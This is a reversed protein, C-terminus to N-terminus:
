PNRQRVLMKEKAQIAVVRLGLVVRIARESSPRNSRIAQPPQARMREVTADVQRLLVQSGGDRLHLVVLSGTPGRDNVHRGDADARVRGPQDRHGLPGTQMDDGPGPVVQGRGVGVVRSHLLGGLLQGVLHAARQQFAHAPRLNAGTQHTLKAHAVRWRRHFQPHEGGGRLHLALQVAGDIDVGGPIASPGLRGDPCHFGGADLRAPRHNAVEVHPEEVVQGRVFLKRPAAVPEREIREAALHVVRM